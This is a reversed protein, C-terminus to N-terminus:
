RPMGQNTRTDRASVLRAGDGLHDQWLYAALLPEDATRMAHPEMTAHRIREGPARTRWIRDGQLWESRGAIVGYIEAAAHAHEPYTVRPGLLLLGLAVDRYKLHGHPGMLECYAYGDLFDAGAYNPNQRWQLSRALRDISACLPRTDSSARQLAAHLHNAACMTRTPLVTADLRADLANLRSEGLLSALGATLERWEFAVDQGSTL